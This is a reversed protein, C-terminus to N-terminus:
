NIKMTDKTPANTYFFVNVVKIRKAFVCVSIKQFYDSLRM